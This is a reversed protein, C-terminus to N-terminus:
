RGSLVHATANNPTLPPSPVGNCPGPFSLM